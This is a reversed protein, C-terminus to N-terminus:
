LTLTEDDSRKSKKARKTQTKPTKPTKPKAETFEESHPSNAPAAEKVKPPRGRPKAKVEVKVPEVEVKVPEVKIKTPKGKAPPAEKVADNRLIFSEMSKRSQECLENIKNLKEEFSNVTNMLDKFQDKSM